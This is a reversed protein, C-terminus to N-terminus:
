LGTKRLKHNTSTTDKAKKFLNQAVLLGNLKTSKDDYAKQIAEDLMREYREVLDKAM